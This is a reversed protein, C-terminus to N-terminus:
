FRGGPPGERHLTRELTPEVNASVGRGRGFNFNFGASEHIQFRSRRTLWRWRESESQEDGDGNVRNAEVRQSRAGGVAGRAASRPALRAFGFLFARFYSATSNSLSPSHTHWTRRPAARRRQTFRSPYPPPM